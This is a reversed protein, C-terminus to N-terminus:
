KKWCLCLVSGNNRNTGEAVLVNVNGVTTVCCRVEIWLFLMSVGIKKNKIKSSTIDDHGLKSDELGAENQCEHHCDAARNTRLFSLCSSSEKHEAVRQNVTAVVIVQWSQCAGVRLWVAYVIGGM